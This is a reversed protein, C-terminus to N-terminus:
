QAGRVLLGLGVLGLTLAYVWAPVPIGRLGAVAAIIVLAAGLTLRRVQAWEIILAAAHARCLWGFGGSGTVRTLGGPCDRHDAWFTLGATRGTRPLTV